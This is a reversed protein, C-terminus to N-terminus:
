LVGCYLLNEGQQNTEGFLCDKIMVGYEVQNFEKYSESYGDVSVSTVVKDGNNHLLEVLEFMCRKVNESFVNDNQLRNFTYADMIKEAKYAIRSFTSNDLNGGWTKYEVYTLYM